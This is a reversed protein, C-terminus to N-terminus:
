FSAEGHGIHFGSQCFVFFGRYGIAHTFKTLLANRLFGGNARLARGYEGFIVLFVFVGLDIYFARPSDGSHEIFHRYVYEVTLEDHAIV